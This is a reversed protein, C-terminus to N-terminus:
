PQRSVASEAALLAVGEDTSTRARRDLLSALVVCTPERLGPRRPVRRADATASMDDLPTHRGTWVRGADRRRERGVPVSKGSAFWDNV